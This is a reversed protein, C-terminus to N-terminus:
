ILYCQQENKFPKRLHKIKIKFIKKKLHFTENNKVETKTMM